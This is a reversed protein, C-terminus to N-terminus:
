TTAKAQELGILALKRKQGWRYEGLVGSSRIVRHCPVLFALPNEAVCSAVARVASSHGSLAALQAYSVLSGAPVRLLALWVSLRLDSGKLVLGLRSQPTLGKMRRLVEEAYPMVYSQSEALQAAPWNEELESLATAVDDVFAIRCVGRETAAFLASGVPTDTITWYITLGQAQQKYEGPTMKEVHVFLDHLRSPGSLGVQLSAELLSASNKLLVKARQITFAQLFEKPTVGAWSLFLRQFYFPSLGVHRAVKDLGPQRDQHTLLYAIAREIRAYSAPPTAPDQTMDKPTDKSRTVSPVPSRAYLM